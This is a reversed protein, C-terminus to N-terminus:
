GGGSWQRGSDIGGGWSGPGDLRLRCDRAIDIARFAVFLKLGVLGMPM